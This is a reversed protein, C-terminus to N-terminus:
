GDLLGLIRDVSHRAEILAEDLESTLAGRSRSLIPLHARTSYISVRWGSGERTSVLDYGRYRCIAHETM